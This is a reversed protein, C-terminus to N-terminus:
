QAIKDKSLTSNDKPNGLYLWSEKYVDFPLRIYIAELSSGEPRDIADVTGAYSPSIAPISVLNGEKITVGRPLIARINGGGIGWAVAPISSTSVMVTLQTNPASYLTVLATKSWVRTVEGVKFDGQSFAPMGVFVGQSDGIDILLTDYPSIPPSALIRGLTFTYESKRGLMEKLQDNEVRLQDRSYAELAVESLVQRLHANEAELSSKSSLATAVSQYHLAVSDRISWFPKGFYALVGGLTNAVPGRVTLTLLSLLLIAILTRRRKKKKQEDHRFSTIM